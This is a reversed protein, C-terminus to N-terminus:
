HTDCSSWQCIDSGLVSFVRTETKAELAIVALNRYKDLAKPSSSIPNTPFAKLAEIDGADVLATLEALKKRFRAHTEASFDPPTPLTGAQASALAEARKGAPAREAKPAAEKAPKEAKTYDPVRVPM